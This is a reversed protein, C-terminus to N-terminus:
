RCGLVGFGLANQAKLAYLLGDVEQYYRLGFVALYLGAGSPASVPSFSLSTGSFHKDIVLANALYLESELSEFDFDLIGFQLAMHTAGSIFVVADIAFSPFSLTYSTWDLRYSFPLVQSLDMKPTYNFDILMQKGAEASVGTAVRRAGREHVTDLTKLQTFLTMLRSHFFTFRHGAYFPRLAMRFAKNVKSCHGFESANERVRQMRAKTKIAKGNFGGGAARAVPKGNLYYFNIGGITGVLPIMGKQKAM